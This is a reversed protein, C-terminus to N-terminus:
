AEALIGEKFRGKYYNTGQFLEGNGHHRLNLVEGTYKDGNSYYM